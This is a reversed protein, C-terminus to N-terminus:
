PEQHKRQERKLIYDRRQQGSEAREHTLHLFSARGEGQIHMNLRETTNVKPEEIAREPIKVRIVTNSEYMQLLCFSLLM